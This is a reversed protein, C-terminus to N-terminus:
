DAQEECGGQRRAPGWASRNDVMSVLWTCTALRPVQGVQNGAQVQVPGSHIAAPAPLSDATLLLVAQEIFKAANLRVGDNKHQAALSTVAAKLGEAGEWVARLEGAQAADGGQPM